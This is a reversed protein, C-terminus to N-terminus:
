FFNNYKSQIVQKRTIISLANKYKNMVLYVIIDFIVFLNSTIHYSIKYFSFTKKVSLISKFNDDQIYITKIIAFQRLFSQNDYLYLLNTIITDCHM